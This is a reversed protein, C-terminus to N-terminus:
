KYPCSEDHGVTDVGWVRETCPLVEGVRLPWAAGGESDSGPYGRGVWGVGGGRFGREPKPRWKGFEVGVEIEGGEEFAGEAGFL